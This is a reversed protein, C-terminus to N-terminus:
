HYTASNCLRQGGESFCRVLAHMVQAVSTLLTDGRKKVSTFMTPGLSLLALLRSLSFSFACTSSRAASCVCPAHNVWRLAVSLQNTRPQSHAPFFPRLSFFRVEAAFRPSCCCLKSLELLRGGSSLSLRSLKGLKSTGGADFTSSSASNSTPLYPLYHQSVVFM